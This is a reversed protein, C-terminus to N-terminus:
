NYISVSKPRLELYSKCHPCIITRKNLVDNNKVLVNKQCTPCKVEALNKQALDSIRGIKYKDWYYSTFAIGIIAVLFWPWYLRLAEVLLVYGM